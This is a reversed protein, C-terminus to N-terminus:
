ERIPTKKIVKQVQRSSGSQAKGSQWRITSQWKAV